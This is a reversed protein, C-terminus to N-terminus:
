EDRVNLLQESLNFPGDTTVAPRAQDIEALILRAITVSEDALQEIRSVSRPVLIKALTPSAQSVLKLATKLENSLQIFNPQNRELSGRAGLFVKYMQTAVQAVTQRFSNSHQIWTYNSLSSLEFDGKSVIVMLSCLSNVSLAGRLLM